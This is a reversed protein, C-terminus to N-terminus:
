IPYYTVVTLGGNMGLLKPSSVPLSDEQWETM